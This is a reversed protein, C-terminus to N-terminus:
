DGIIRQVYGLAARGDIGRAAMDALYGEAIRVAEADQRLVKGPAVATGGRGRTEVFGEAELERYTRAVTNVALGLEEALRRVPPLRAAEPLEGSEIQAAIQRRLQEFPPISSGPDLTLAM